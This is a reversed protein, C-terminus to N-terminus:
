VAGKKTFYMRDPHEKIVFQYKNDICQKLLDCWQNTTLNISVFWSKPEDAWACNGVSMFDKYYSTQRANHIMTMLKILDREEVIFHRNRVTFVDFLKIM